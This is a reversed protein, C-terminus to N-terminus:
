RAYDFWWWYTQGYSRRLLNNRKRPDAITDGMDAYDLYNAEIAANTYRVAPNSCRRTYLMLAQAFYTPLTGKEVARPYLKKVEVAFDDIRRDLLLASLYYDAAPRSSTNKLSSLSDCEAYACRRFYAVAEEGARRQAGLLHSLSDAPLMYKQREDAPFLLNASGGEPVPQEYLKEGLGAPLTKALVYCRLAFLRPSAALSRAGVEYADSPRGEMVAQATRLEYHAADTAGAGVGIYITLLLLRVAPPMFSQWLTRPEPYLRSLRRQWLWGGVILAVAVCFLVAQRGWGAFPFSVGAVALWAAAVYAPFADRRLARVKREAVFAAGTLLTTLLIAALWPWAAVPRGVACSVMYAIVDYQSKAFFFLLSLSFFIRFIM